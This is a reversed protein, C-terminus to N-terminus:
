IRRRCHRKRVAFTVWCLVVILWCGFVRFVEETRGGAPSGRRLKRRKRGHRRSFEHEHAHRGLRRQPPQKVRM